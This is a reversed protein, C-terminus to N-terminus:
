PMQQLQFQYTAGSSAIKIQYSILAGSAQDYNLVADFGAMRDSVSVVKRGQQTSISQVTLKEGTAPETDLVQGVKMAKLASVDM